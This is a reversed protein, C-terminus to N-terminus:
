RNESNGGFKLLRLKLRSLVVEFTGTFLIVFAENTRGGFGNMTNVQSAAIGQV